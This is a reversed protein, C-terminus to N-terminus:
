NPSGNPEEAPTEPTAPQEQEPSVQVPSLLVMRTNLASFSQKQGQAGDPMPHDFVVSCNCFNEAEHIVTITAPISVKDGVKLLNGNADHPM